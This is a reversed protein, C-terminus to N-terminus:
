IKVKFRDVIEYNRNKIIIEYNGPLLYLAPSVEDPKVEMLDAPVGQADFEGARYALVLAAAAQTKAKPLSYKQKGRIFWDAKGDIFQTLSHIVVLDTPNGPAAYVPGKGGNALLVMAEGLRNSQMFPHTHEPNSRELFRTQDITLPDLGLNDKLRGAMAKGWNSHEIEYAHAYGCHILVKGKKNTAIFQQINQAQAIEREKGNVNGTAEYNFLTFGIKLAESVLLAMEPEQTYHGTEAVAFPRDQFNDQYLAEMGLYRYGKQYLDKLLSRTFTRHAAVHHAENIILIPAKKAEALIYERASVQKSEKLWLSDAPSLIPKRSGNKDWYQMVEAYAGIFSLDTAGTQYKWSTEDKAIRDLIDQKFLYPSNSQAMVQCSFAILLGFYIWLCKKM